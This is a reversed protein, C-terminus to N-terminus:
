CTTPELGEAPEIDFGDCKTTTKKQSIIWFCGTKNNGKWNEVSM